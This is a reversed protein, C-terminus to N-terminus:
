SRIKNKCIHWWKYHLAKEQENMQDYQSQTTFLEPYEKRMRLTNADRLFIQKDNDKSICTYEGEPTFAWLEDDGFEM